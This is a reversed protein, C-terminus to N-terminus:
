YPMTLDAAPTVTDLYIAAADGTMDTDNTELLCFGGMGSSHDALCAGSYKTVFAPIPTTPDNSAAPWGTIWNQDVLVTLTRGGFIAQAALDDTATNATAWADFTTSNDDFKYSFKEYIMEYMEAEVPATYALTM